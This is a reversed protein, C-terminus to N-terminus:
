VPSSTSSPMTIEIAPLPLVRISPLRPPLSQSPLSSPPLPQPQETQEAPEAPEPAGRRKDRGKRKARPPQPRSSPAAAAASTPASTFGAPPEDSAADSPPAPPDAYPPAPFDPAATRERERDEGDARGDDSHRLDLITVEEYDPPPPHPGDDPEEEEQVSGDMSSMMSSLSHLSSHRRGASPRPAFPPLYQSSLVFPSAPRSGPGAAATTDGSVGTGMPAAGDLLPSEAADSSSRLRSGDHRALGVDAYSVSSVRRDRTVGVSALSVLSAPFSTTSAAAALNADPGSEARQRAARREIRLAELAAGDGRDRAEQRRRRWDEREAAEARRALRTQYMTAADDARRDEEEEATEPFEIVVDIGAREGERGLIQESEAATPRYAPLTMISRVSTHRDVRDHADTEGDVAEDGSRPSSETATTIEVDQLPAQNYKGGRAEKNKSTWARWKRQLYRTPLFRPNPSRVRVARLFAWGLIVGIALGVVIAAVRTGANMPPPNSDAQQRRHLGAM